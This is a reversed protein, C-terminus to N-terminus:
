DSETQFYDFICLSGSISQKKKKDGSVKEKELKRAQGRKAKGAQSLRDNVNGPLFIKQLIPKQYSPIQIGLALISSVCICEDGNM